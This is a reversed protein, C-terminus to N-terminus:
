LLGHAARRVQGLLPRDARGGSQRVPHRRHDALQRRRLLQRPETGARRRLRAHHRRRGLHHRQGDSPAAREPAPIPPAAAVPQARRPPTRGPIRVPKRRRAAAPRSSRLAAAPPWWCWRGDAAALALRAPAGAASASPRHVRMSRRRQDADQEGVAPIMACRSTPAACVPRPPRRRSSSTPECGVQDREVGGGARRRAPGRRPRDAASGPRGSAAAPASTSTQSGCGSSTEPVRWIGSGISNAPRGCSAAVNAPEPPPWLRSSFPCM